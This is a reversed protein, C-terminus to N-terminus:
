TFPLSAIFYAVALDGLKSSFIWENPITSDNLNSLSSLNDLGVM